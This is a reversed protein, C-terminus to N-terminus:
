NIRVVRSNFFFFLFVSLLLSLSLSVSVSLFLAHWAPQRVEPYAMIVEQELDKDAVWTAVPFAWQGDGPDLNDREM